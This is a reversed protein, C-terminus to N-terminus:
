SQGEIFQHEFQQKVRKIRARVANSSTGIVEAIQESTLGDLYMMLTNADADSLLQLFSALIDAQCTNDANQVVVEETHKKAVDKQKIAKRVYSTATNLAVKYVWTEEASEGKFSGFSRWLQMLIEQYIDESDSDRSYRSAIYRIRGHNNAILQEFAKQM